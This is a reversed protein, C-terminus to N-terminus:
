QIYKKDFLETIDEYPNWRLVVFIFISIAFTIITFLIIRESTYYIYGDFPISYTIVGLLPKQSPQHCFNCESKRYVPLIGNYFRGTVTFTPQPNIDNCVSMIASNNIMASMGPAKILNGQTDYVSISIGYRKQLDHLYIWAYEPKAMTKIQLFSDTMIYMNRELEKFYGSKYIGFIDGIYPPVSFIQIFSIAWLLGLLIILVRKIIM